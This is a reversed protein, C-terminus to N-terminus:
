SIRKDGKLIFEIQNGESNPSPLDYWNNEFFTGLDLEEDVIFLQSECYKPKPKAIITTITIEMIITMMMM